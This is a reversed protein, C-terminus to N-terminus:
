FRLQLDFSTGPLSTAIVRSRQRQEPATVILVYLGVAAMVGSAIGFGIAWNRDRYFDDLRNQLYSAQFPPHQQIREIDLKASHAELGFYTAATAAIVGAGCSTWGIIPWFKSPESDATPAMVSRRYRAPDPPAAKEEVPRVAARCNPELEAIQSKAHAVREGHPAQQIYRRYNEVAGSCENLDRLVQAINFLLNPDHTASYCQQLLEVAGRLDGAEYHQEAKAFLTASDETEASAHVAPKETAASQHSAARSAEEGPAADV